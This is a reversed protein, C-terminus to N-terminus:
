LSYGPFIDPLSQLMMEIIVPPSEEEEEEEEGEQCAITSIQSQPNTSM